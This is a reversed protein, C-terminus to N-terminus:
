LQYLEHIQVMSSCQQVSVHMFVCQQMWQHTVENCDVWHISNKQFLKGVAKELKSLLDSTPLHKNVNKLLILKLQQISQLSPIFLIDQAPIINRCLYVYVDWLFTNRTVTLQLPASVCVQWIEVIHQMSRCKLYKSQDLWNRDHM